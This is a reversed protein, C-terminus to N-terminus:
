AGALEKECNYVTWGCSACIAIQGDKTVADGVSLSRHNDYPRVLNPDIEEPCNSNHFILDGFEEVSDSMDSFHKITDNKLIVAEDDPHRFDRPDSTDALVVRDNEIKFFYKLPKGEPIILEQVLWFAKEVKDIVIDGVQYRDNNADLWGGQLEMEVQM